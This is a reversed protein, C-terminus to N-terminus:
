INEIARILSDRDEAWHVRKAKEFLRFIEEDLNGPHSERYRNIMRFIIELLADAKRSGVPTEMIGETRLKEEIRMRGERRDSLYYISVRKQEEHEDAMFGSLNWITTSNTLVKQVTSIRVDVWWTKREPRTAYSSGIRFRVTRTGMDDDFLALMLDLKSPGQDIAFEANQRAM